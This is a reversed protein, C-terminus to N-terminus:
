RSSESIRTTQEMTELDRRLAAVAITADGASATVITLAPRTGRGRDPRRAPGLRDAPVGGRCPRSVAPGPARRSGRRRRDRGRPSRRGPALAAADDRRGRGTGVCALDLLLLRRVGLALVSEALARPDSTGWEAGEAVKPLGDRLDLSFVVRDPGALDLIEALAGPGRVTELGAVIRSVGADMLSSLSAGDVVGPDAWLSLGM